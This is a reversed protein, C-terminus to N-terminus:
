QYVPFISHDGYDEIKPLSNLIAMDEDSIVFNLDANNEMHAPNATKPLPLLGLQLTYRICLQALSVNYKEAMEKIAPNKFLEGHGMPSYAEVLLGQSTSYEILDTPVNTVHALIQNVMPKVTCDSLINEIDVQKFNSLGIARIKGAKYFEELAKWAAQNGEFFRDEGGFVGWPQPSHIIILDIYELGMRSFSEEIAQKADEYTKHAAALKTTLFIEERPLGCSKIGAAVEAENGYDQATDIHRYGLAIANKVAQEADTQSIMWTGLGLKPIKVGNALTFTEQALMTEEKDHPPM